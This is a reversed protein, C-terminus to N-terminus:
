CPETNTKFNRTELPKCSLSTTNTSWFSWKKGQRNTPVGYSSRLVSLCHCDTLLQVMLRNLFASIATSFPYLHKLM